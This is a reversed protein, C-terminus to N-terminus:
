TSKEKMFTKRLLICDKSFRQFIEWTSFMTLNLLHQSSTKRYLISSISLELLWHNVWTKLKKRSYKFSSCQLQKSYRRWKLKQLFPIIWLTSNLYYGRLFKLEEVVQNVWLQFSKYILSGIRVLKLEIMGSAM